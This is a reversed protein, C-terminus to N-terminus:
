KNQIWEYISGFDTQRERCNRFDISVNGTRVEINCRWLLMWREHTKVFDEIESEMFLMVAKECFKYDLHHRPMIVAQSDTDYELIPIENKILAM